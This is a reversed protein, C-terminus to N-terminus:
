GTSMVVGAATQRRQQHHDSRAPQLGLADYTRRVMLWDSDGAHATEATVPKYNQLLHSPPAAPPQVPILLGSPSQQTPTGPPLGTPTQSNPRPAPQQGASVVALMLVVTGIAVGCRGRSDVM